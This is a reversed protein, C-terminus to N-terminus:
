CSFRLMSLMLAIYPALPLAIAFISNGRKEPYVSWMRRLSGWLVPLVFTMPLAAAIIRYPLEATAISPYTCVASLLSPPLQPLIGAVSDAAITAMVGSVFYVGILVLKAIEPPLKAIGIVDVPAEADAEDVAWVNPQATSAASIRRRARNQTLEIAWASIAAALGIGLYQRIQTFADRVNDVLLDTTEIQM